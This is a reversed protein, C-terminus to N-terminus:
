VPVPSAAPTKSATMIGLLALGTVAGYKGLKGLAARRTDDVGSETEGTETQDRPQDAM